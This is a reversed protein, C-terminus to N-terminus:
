NQSLMANLREIMPKNKIEMRGGDKEISYWIGHEMEYQDFEGNPQKIFRCQIENKHVDKYKGEPAPLFNSLQSPNTHYGNTKGNKGNGNMNQFPEYIQKWQRRFAERLIETAKEPNSHSIKNLENLEEEIGEKAFGGFKGVRSSFWKTWYDLFQPHQYFQFFKDHLLALSHQFTPIQSPIYKKNSQLFSEDKFKEQLSQVWPKIEQLFQEELGFSSQLTKVKGNRGRSNIERTTNRKIRSRIIRGRHPDSSGGSPPTADVGTDGYVPTADVGTDLENNNSSKIHNANPNHYHLLIIKYCFKRPNKGYWEKEIRIFKHDILWKKARKVQKEGINTDEMVQNNTIRIRFSPRNKGSRLGAEYNKYGYERYVLCYIIMADKITNKEEQTKAKELFRRFIRGESRSCVALFYDPNTEEVYSSNDTGDEEWDEIEDMKNLEPDIPNNM